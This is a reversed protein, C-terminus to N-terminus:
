RATVNKSIEDRQIRLEILNGDAHLSVTNRDRGVHDYQFAYIQTAKGEHQVPMSQILTTSVFDFSKIRTRCRGTIVGRMRMHLAVRQAFAFAFRGNSLSQTVSPQEIEEHEYPLNQLGVVM